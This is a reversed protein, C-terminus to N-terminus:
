LRDAAGSGGMDADFVADFARGEAHHAGTCGRRVGDAQGVAHDALAENFQPAVRAHCAIRTSLGSPSNGNALLRFPVTSASPAPMRVSSSYSRALARPAGM